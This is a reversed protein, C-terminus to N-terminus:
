CYFRAIFFNSWRCFLSLFLSLGLCCRCSLVVLPLFLKTPITAITSLPTMTSCLTLIFSILTPLSLSLPPSIFFHTFLPSLTRSYSFCFFYYVLIIRFPSCFFDLISHNSHHLETKSKPYMEYYYNMIMKFSDSSDSDM